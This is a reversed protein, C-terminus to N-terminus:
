TGAELEDAHFYLVPDSGVIDTDLLQDDEVGTGSGDRTTPQVWLGSIGAARRLRKEEDETLGFGVLNSRTYSYGGLSEQTAGTPNAEADLSAQYKRAVIEAFTSRIRRAKSQDAATGADLTDLDQIGIIDEALGQVHDILEAMYEDTDLEIRLITAVRSPTIWAM